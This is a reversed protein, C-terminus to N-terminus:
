VLHNNQSYCFYAPDVPVNGMSGYQFYPFMGINQMYALNSIYNQYDFGYGLSNGIHGFYSNANENKLNKEPIKEKKELSGLGQLKVLMDIAADNKESEMREKKMKQKEYSIKLARETRTTVNSIKRLDKQIETETAQYLSIIVKPRRNKIKLTKRNRSM